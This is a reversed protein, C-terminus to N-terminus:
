LCSNMGNLKSLLNKMKFSPIKKLLLLHLPGSEPALVRLQSRDAVERAPPPLWYCSGEWQHERGGGKTLPLEIKNERPRSIKPYKFSLCQCFYKGFINKNIM